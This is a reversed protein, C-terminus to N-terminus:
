GEDLIPAFRREVLVGLEQGMAVQFREAAFDNGCAGRQVSGSARGWKYALALVCARYRM